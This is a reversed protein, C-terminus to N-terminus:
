SNSSNQGAIQEVFSSTLESLEARTSSKLLYRYVFWLSYALGILELTPAILPIGNFVNLVAVLVKIGILTFVILGITILPKQWEGFFTSVYHPLNSLVERVTEGINQYQNESAEPQTTTGEDVPISAAVAEDNPTEPTPIEAVVEEEKPTEPTPTEALVAEEEPTEPTPTEALVSEEAAELSTEVESTTESIDAELNTEESTTESIDAELNTEESTTESTEM